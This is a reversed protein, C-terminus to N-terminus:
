LLIVNRSCQCVTGFISLKKLFVQYCGPSSNTLAYITNLGKRVLGGNHYKKADQLLQQLSCSLLSIFHFMNRFPKLIASFSM